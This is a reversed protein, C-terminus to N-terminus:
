CYCKFLSKTILMFYLILGNLSLQIQPFFVILVSRDFKSVIVPKLPFGLWVGLPITMSDVQDLVNVMTEAPKKLALAAMAQGVVHIWLRVKSKRLPLIRSVMDNHGLVASGVVTIVMLPRKGSAMDEDLLTEFAEHDIRAEVDMLENKVKKLIRVDSIAFESALYAALDIHLAPSVYVVPAGMQLFARWGRSMFDRGYVDRLALRVAHGIGVKVSDLVTSESDVCHIQANPFRFLKSMVQSTNGYLWAAISRRHSIGLLDIYSRLSASIILLRGLETLRASDHHSRMKIVDHPTSGSFIPEDQQKKTWEDSLILTELQHLVSSAALSDQSTVTTSHSLDSTKTTSLDKNNLREERSEESLSSGKGSSPSAQPSSNASNIKSCDTAPM